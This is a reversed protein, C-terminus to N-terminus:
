RKRKKNPVRMTFERGYKEFLVGPMYNIIKIEEFEQPLTEEELDEIRRKINKVV